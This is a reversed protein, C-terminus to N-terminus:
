NSEHKRIVYNREEQDLTSTVITNTVQGPWLLQVVTPEYLMKPIGYRKFLRFYYECDMYYILNEDFFLPNDNLITLCSHTGITNHKYIESNWSPDHKSYTQLRTYTHMYSSVLWGYEKDFTEVTTKLADVGFLFDDQCLIKIIEGKCHRIANNINASSSGRKDPNKYYEVSFAYSKCLDYLENGVSHDSVVIEYDHFSQITISNIAYRLMEAGHGGMEYCPIAISIVTM